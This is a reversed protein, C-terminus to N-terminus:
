GALNEKTDAKGEVGRPKPKCRLLFMQTPKESYQPRGSFYALPAQAGLALAVPQLSIKGGVCLIVCDHGILGM